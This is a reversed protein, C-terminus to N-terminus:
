SDRDSGHIEETVVEIMIVVEFEEHLPAPRGILKETDVACWRRNRAPGRAFRVECSARLEMGQAVIGGESIRRTFTSDRADATVQSHLIRCLKEKEGTM